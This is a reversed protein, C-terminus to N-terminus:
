VPAPTSAKAIPGSGESYRLIVRLAIRPARAGRREGACGLPSLVGGGRGRMRVRWRYFAGMDDETDTECSLGGGASTGAGGAALGRRERARTMPRTAKASRRVPPAMAQCAPRLCSKM